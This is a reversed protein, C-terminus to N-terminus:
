SSYDEFLQLTDWYAWVAELGRQQKMIETAGRAAKVYVDRTPRLDAGSVLRPIAVHPADNYGHGNHLGVIECCDILVAYREISYDAQLGPKFPDRDPALDFAGGFNHSSSGPPAARSGTMGKPVPKGAKKAQYAAFLKAQEAYGRTGKTPYYPQGRQECLDLVKTVRALFPPYILDTDVRWTGDDRKFYKDLITIGLPEPM